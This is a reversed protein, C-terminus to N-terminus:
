AEQEQNIYGLKQAMLRLEDYKIHHCGVHIDGNGDIRTLRYVGLRQGEGPFILDQALGRQREIVRWLAPAQDVPIAAGRSTEIESGDKSLRLMTDVYAGYGYGSHGVANRWATVWEAIEKQREEARQKELVRQREAMEADHRQKAAVLDDLGEITIRLPSNHAEAFFNFDHAVSAAANQYYIRNDEKRARQSKSVLEVVEELMADYNDQVTMDPSWVEVIKLHSAASRAAACHSSTTRSWRRTAIFAVRKGKVQEIVGICAQYSFLKTDRFSVSGCEGMFQAQNAWYHMVEDINRLVTRM